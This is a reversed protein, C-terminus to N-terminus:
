SEMIFNIFRKGFPTFILLDGETRLETVCLSNLHIILDRARDRDMDELIALLSPLQLGKVGDTDEQPREILSRIIRLHDIQMDEIVRLFRVQEDYNVTPNKISKELFNRFLQRKQRNRENASKILTQEFLEEFEETQVYEESVESKFGDLDKSLGHIVEKVREIKRNVSISSFINSIPGGLTPIVSSSLSLLDFIKEPNEDIKSLRQTIKKM